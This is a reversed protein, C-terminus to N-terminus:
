QVFRECYAVAAESALKCGGSTKILDAWLDSGIFEGSEVKQQTELGLKGALAYEEIWEDFWEPNDSWLGM